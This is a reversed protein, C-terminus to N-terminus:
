NASDRSWLNVLDVIWNRLLFWSLELWIPTICPISSSGITRSKPYTRFVRLFGKLVDLFTPFSSILMDSNHLLYQAFSSIHTFSDFHVSSQVLILICCRLIFVYFSSFIWSELDLSAWSLWHLFGIIPCSLNVGARPAGSLTRHGLQCAWRVPRERSFSLARPQFDGSKGTHVPSDPSGLALPWRRWRDFAVRDSLVSSCFRNSFTLRVPSDPAGWPLCIWRDVGVPLQRPM